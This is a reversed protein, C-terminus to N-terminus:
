YVERM